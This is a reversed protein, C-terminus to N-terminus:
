KCTPPTTALPHRSKHRSTSTSDEAKFDWGAGKRTIQYGSQRLAEAIDDLEDDVAWEGESHRRDYAYAYFVDRVVKPINHNPDPAEPQEYAKRDSM